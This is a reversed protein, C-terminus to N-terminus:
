SSTARPLTLLLERIMDDFSVTACCGTDRWEFAVNRGCEDFVFCGGLHTLVGNERAERNPMVDPWHRVTIGVKTQLRLTAKEFPRLPWSGTGFLFDDFKNRLVKGTTPDIELIANPWRGFRQGV